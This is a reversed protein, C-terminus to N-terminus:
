EDIRELHSKMIVECRDGSSQVFGTFRAAGHGSRPSGEGAHLWPDFLLRGSLTNSASIDTQPVFRVFGIVGSLTLKQGLGSM